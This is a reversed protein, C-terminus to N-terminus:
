ATRCLVERIENGNEVTVKDGPRIKKGREIVVIGNVKVRKEQLLIKAESGQSVLDALKLLQGLKIFETQIVVTEM